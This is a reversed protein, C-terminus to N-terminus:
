RNRYYLAQAIDNKQVDTKGALDAITRAVRLIRIYSRMSIDLNKLARDILNQGPADLAAVENLIDYDAEANCSIGIGKYRMLQRKRAVVVREKLEKTRTAEKYNNINLIDINPVDLHIDIRDLMPGSIKNKYVVGCQPARTCSKKINGLYGCKCPNMAAIFQFDAPYTVHSNVRAITVNKSEIPQRLSDLVVRSFEPLEDLFLVGKSALTVEGPKAKKGGGVMAAMSCSHHPDRFPRSVRVKNNLKDAVSAIMNIELIEKPSPDPLLGPLRKALMSKGTGPTGVMLVNHGGAAAIIIGQKASEQGKVDEMDPISSLEEQAIIEPRELLHIGSFHQIIELLHHAAIIEKCGALIVEASNKSCCIIGKKNQEAFISAPLVGSVPMIIGDLSLEGMAVYKSIEDQPIKQMVTLISLIIALDYHSGEKMLDAPSLNVTIRKPPMSLGIASMAARIRERSEGVAKDPLGVINFAPIGSAICIQVDIKVVEMGQLAITNVHAFM